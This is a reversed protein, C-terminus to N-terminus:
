FMSHIPLGELLRLTSEKKIESQTLNFDVNNKTSSGSARGVLRATYSGNMYSTPVVVETELIEGTNSAVVTRVIESGLYLDCTENPTYGNAKIKFSANM